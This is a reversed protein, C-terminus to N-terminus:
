LTTNKRLGAIDVTCAVTATVVLSDIKRDNVLDVAVNPAVPYVTTGAVNNAKVTVAATSVIRIVPIDRYENVGATSQTGAGVFTLTESLLVMEYYPTAAVWTLGAAVAEAADYFHDTAIQEGPEIHKRNGAVFFPVTIMQTTNNKVTPM